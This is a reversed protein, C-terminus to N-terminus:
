GIIALKSHHVFGKNELDLVQDLIDRSLFFVLENV